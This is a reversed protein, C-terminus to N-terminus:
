CKGSIYVSKRVVLLALTSFEATEIFRTNFWESHISLFWWCTYGSFLETHIKWMEGLCASRAHSDKHKHFEHYQM